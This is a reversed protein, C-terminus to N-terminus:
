NGRRSRFAAVLVSLVIVAVMSAPVFAALTLAVVHWAPYDSSDAAAILGAAAAACLALQLYILTAIKVNETTEPDPDSM